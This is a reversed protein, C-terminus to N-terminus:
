RSRAMGTGALSRRRAAAATKLWPGSLAFFGKKMRVSAQFTFHRSDYVGFNRRPLTKVTRRMPKAIGAVVEDALQWDHPVGQVPCSM